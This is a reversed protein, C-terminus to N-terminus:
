EEGKGASPTPKNNIRDGVQKILRGQCDACIRMSEFKVIDRNSTLTKPDIDCNDDHEPYIPSGEQTSQEAELSKEYRNTEKEAMDYVPRYFGAFILNIARGVILFRQRNDVDSLSSECLKKFGDAIDLVRKKCEEDKLIM